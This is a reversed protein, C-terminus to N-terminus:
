KIGKNLLGFAPNAATTPACLTSFALLCCCETPIARCPLAAQKTLDQGFRADVPHTRWDWEPCIGHGNDEEAGSLHADRSNPETTGDQTSGSM